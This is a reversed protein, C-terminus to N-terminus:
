SRALSLILFGPYSSYALSLLPMISPASMIDLPQVLPNLVLPQFIKLVMLPSMVELVSLLLLLTWMLPEYADSLGILFLILHQQDRYIAFLAADVVSVLM